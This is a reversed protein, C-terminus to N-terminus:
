EFSDFDLELAEYVNRTSKECYYVPLDKETRIAKGIFGDYTGFMMKSVSKNISNIDSYNTFLVTKGLWNKSNLSETLGLRKNNNQDFGYGLIYVNDAEKISRSAINIKEMSSMKDHPDITQINKSAHFCHNLFTNTNAIYETPQADNYEPNGMTKISSILKADQGKSDIYKVSGYVHIIRNGSLFTNVDKDHFMEIHKLAESLKYDLSMDYNFTVFTVKNELLDESKNCGYVIKHILFRYWDDKSQMAEIEARRIETKDGVSSTLKRRNPNYISNNAELQCEVIAAAIMLKGILQLSENWGLFYDIVLPRISKLKQVLKYANESMEMWCHRCESYNDSLNTLNLRYKETLIETIFNPLVNNAYPSRSRQECLSQFRSAMDIIKEVLIEGTPYGYHWSAGAGLIFVTKEKFM